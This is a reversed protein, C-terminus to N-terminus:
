SKGGEGGQQENDEIGQQSPQEGDGQLKFFFFSSFDIISYNTCFIFRSIFSRLLSRTLLNNFSHRWARM